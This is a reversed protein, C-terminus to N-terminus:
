LHHVTVTKREMGAGELLRITRDRDWAWLYDALDDTFKQQVLKKNFAEASPKGESTRCGLEKLKRGVVHSSVGFVAGIQKMTWFESM